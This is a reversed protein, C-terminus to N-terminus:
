FLFIIKEKFAEKEESDIVMESRDLVQNGNSDFVQVVGQKYTGGDLYVENLMSQPVPRAPNGYIWYWASVLNYPALKTGGDEQQQPCCPM